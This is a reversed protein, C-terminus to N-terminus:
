KHISNLKLGKEKLIKIVSRLIIVTRESQVHGDHFVVIDGGATHTEILKLIFKDSVNKDFDYSMISWLVLKLDLEQCVHILRPSFVGYPPRFYHVPKGIIKEIIFKSKSLQDQIYAKPQYFLRKHEFSHIGVTHGSQNMQQIIEPYQQAKQWVVFFSARTQERELITLIQPTFIPDPGDDFTLYVQNYTYFDKWLIKPFLKIFAHPFRYIRM